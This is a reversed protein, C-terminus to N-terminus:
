LLKAMEVSSVMQLLFTYQILTNCFFILGRVWGFRGSVINGMLVRFCVCFASFIATKLIIELRSCIRSSYSAINREFSYVLRSIYSVVFLFLNSLMAYELNDSIQDLVCACQLIFVLVVLLLM